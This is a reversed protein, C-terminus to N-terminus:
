GIMHHYLKIIHYALGVEAPLAPNRVDDEIIEELDVGMLILELEKRTRKGKHM